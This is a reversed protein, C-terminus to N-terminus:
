EDRPKPSFKEFYLNDEEINLNATETPYQKKLYLYQLKNLNEKKQENMKNFKEVFSSVIASRKAPELSPEVMLFFYLGHQAYKKVITEVRDLEVEKFKYNTHALRLLIQEFQTETIDRKDAYAVLENYYDTPNLNPQTVIFKILELHNDVSFNHIKKRYEEIIRETVKKYQYFSFINKEYANQMLGILDIRDASKFKAIFNNLLEALIRKSSPSRSINIISLHFALDRPGLSAILEIVKKENEVLQSELNPNTFLIELTGNTVREISPTYSPDKIHQARERQFHPLSM